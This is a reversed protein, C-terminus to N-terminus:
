FKSTLADYFGVVVAFVDEVAPESDPNAIYYAKTLDIAAEIRQEKGFSGGGSVQQMQQNTLERM